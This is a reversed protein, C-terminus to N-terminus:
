KQDSVLWWVCGVPAGNGAVGTHEGAERPRPKAAYRPVCVGAMELGVGAPPRDGM